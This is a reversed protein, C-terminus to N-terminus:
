SDACPAYQPASDGTVRWGNPDPYAHDRVTLDARVRQPRKPDVSPVGDHDHWTLGSIDLCVRVHVWAPAGTDKPRQPIGADTATADVVRFAGSGIISQSRRVLIDETWATLIPDDAVARLQDLPAVPNGELRSWTDYFERVKAVARREAADTPNTSDDRYGGFVPGSGSPATHDAPKTACGAALLVGILALPLLRVTM